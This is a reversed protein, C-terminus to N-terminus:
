CGRSYFWMVLNGRASYAPVWGTPDAAMEKETEEEGSCYGKGLIRVRIWLQGESWKWELVDADTNDYNLLAGGLHLEVPKAALSPSEYLRGNWEERVLYSMHGASLGELPKFGQANKDSIWGKGYRTRVLYWGPQQGYVLAASYEYGVERSALDEPAKAMMVLPAAADPAKRVPVPRAKPDMEGEQPYIALFVVGQVGFPVSGHPDELPMAQARLGLAFLTSALVFARKFGTMAM